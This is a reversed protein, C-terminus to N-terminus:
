TNLYNRIFGKIAGALKSKASKGQWETDKDSTSFGYFTCAETEDKPFNVLLTFSDLKWMLDISMEESQAATPIPPADGYERSYGGVFDILWNRVANTAELAYPGSEFDEDWGQELNHLFGLDADFDALLTEHPSVLAM